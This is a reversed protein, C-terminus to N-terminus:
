WIIIKSIIIKDVTRLNFIYDIAISGIASDDKSNDEAPVYGRGKEILIEMDFLFSGSFIMSKLVLFM